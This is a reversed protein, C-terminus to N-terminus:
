KNVELTFNVRHEDVRDVQFRSIQITSQLIKKSLTEFKKYDLNNFLFTTKKGKSKVTPKPSYNKIYNITRSDSKENDWRDRLQHLVVGSEEVSRMDGYLSNVENVKEARHSLLILAVISLSGFITLSRNNSIV